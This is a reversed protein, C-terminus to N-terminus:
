VCSHLSVRNERNGVVRAAGDTAGVGGLAATGMPSFLGPRVVQLQTRRAVARAAPGPRVASLSLYRLCDAPRRSGLLRPGDHGHRHLVYYTFCPQNCGRGTLQFLFHDCATGRHRLRRQASRSSRGDGGNGGPKADLHTHLWELASGRRGACCRVACDEDACSPDFSSVLCRDAHWCPVGALPSEVGALSGRELYVAPSEPEGCSGDHVSAPYSGGAAHRAVTVHNCAAFLRLRQLWARGRRCVRVGYRLARDRPGHCHRQGHRWDCLPCGTSVMVTTSLRMSAPMAFMLPATAHHDPKSTLRSM